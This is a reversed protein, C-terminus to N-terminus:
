WNYLSEIIEKIVIKKKESRTLNKIIWIKCVLIKDNERIAYWARNNLCNPNKPDIRGLQGTIGVGFNSEAKDCVATAMAIATQASYVTYKDIIESPVGCKIKSENCYTIYSEQLIESSGEINTIESALAGGTCSEMTAITKNQESLIKVISVIKDTYSIEEIYKKKIVPLIQEEISIIGNHTIEKIYESTIYYEYTMNNKTNFIVFLLIDDSSNHLKKNLKSFIENLEQEDLLRNTEIYNLGVKKNGYKYCKYNSFIDNEM